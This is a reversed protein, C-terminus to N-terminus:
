VQKVVLDYGKTDVVEVDAFCGQNASFGQILCISDIEPAQGYFRGVGRKGDVSDVLCTLRQGIRKKNRDFSIKQQTLMLQEVREDKIKDPIQERMRAATTGGEAYYKFCGLADFKAWKVFELLEEFQEETEGPFGVIATTRLVVDPIKGWLKEILEAILEKTDPRRMKKLIENNIHQIPMDFYHVIKKSAAVTEILRDSIGVPYLYMLRLWRLGDIKEIKKVLEALGDKIKLDKGYYATDQAILNLEVAGASVLEKAEEIVENQPKSRFKGKIAPITCFSCKHDCGESIRLYVWHGPTILLRARDNQVTQSQGKLYSLPRTRHLTEKIISGIDNRQGLGVVADIGEANDFLGDKMREALCGAVIVKKVDGRTKCELAHGIVELAEEKAPEIFGCTNVVVVDCNDPESTIVFGAQAIEALMKESDVVNKPCGLAVFGVTVREREKM